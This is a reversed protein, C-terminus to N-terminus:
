GQSAGRSADQKAGRWGSDVGNFRQLSAQGTRPVSCARAGFITWRFQGSIRGLGISTMAGVGGGVSRQPGDGFMQRLGLISLLRVDGKIEM